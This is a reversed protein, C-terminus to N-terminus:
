TFSNIDLNSIKITALNARMTFATFIRVIMSNDKAIIERIFLNAKYLSAELMIRVAWSSKKQKLCGICKGCPLLLLSDGYKDRLLKLNIDVRQPLIKIRHKGTESDIGNDIALLPHYCSM